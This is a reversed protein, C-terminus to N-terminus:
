FAGIWDLFAPITTPPDGTEDAMDELRAIHTVLTAGFSKDYRYVLIDGDVALSLGEIALRSRIALLSPNPPRLSSIANGSFFSARGFTQDLTQDTASTGFRAAFLHAWMREYLMESQHNLVDLRALSRDLFWWQWSEASMRSIDLVRIRVEALDAPTNQTMLDQMRVTPTVLERTVSRGERDLLPQYRFDRKLNRSWRGKTQGSKAHILRWRTPTIVNVDDIWEESHQIIRFDAAHKRGLRVFAALKVLIVMILFAEFDDGIDHARSGSHKKRLYAAQAAKDFAEREQSEIIEDPM